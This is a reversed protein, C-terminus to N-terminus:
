PKTADNYASALNRDAAGAFADVREIEGAFPAAVGNLMGSGVLLDGRAAWPTTFAAQHVAGTTPDSEQTSEAGNVFLAIRDNRRDYTAVLTTLEGVLLDEVTVKSRVELVTAGSADSTTRQFVWRGQNEGAQELALTWSERNVGRQQVIVM